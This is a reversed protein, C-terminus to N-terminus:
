ALHTSAHALVRRNRRLTVAVALTGLAAAMMLASVWVPSRYGLGADIALGGFWPGATNGINFAATTFGGALTPAHDALYFTRSTLVPAIGFALLGQLFVLAVAAAASQATLALTAWGVALATMGYALVTFPRADAIRGGVVIGVVAGAGFLVLMMPVRGAGFGTVGTLLPALYTFTCFTAGQVLANMGYAVLLEGRVLSRLETRLGTRVPEAPAAPVTLVVAAVALASMAAVAWFASRWGWQQGLLAGGPVGAVCALTVGGLVISMARGKADAAALSIATGTAVAWFGANALASVVRTLLLVGYSPTLAGVVHAAAFVVLCAILTGRRPRRLALVALLPAGVIMGIAFASTLLGAQSISVHLDAAIDPVLGSLMFESTSQAFIALGLVYVVFPM